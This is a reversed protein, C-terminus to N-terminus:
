RFRNILDMRKKPLFQSTEQPHHRPRSVSKARGSGQEMVEFPRDLKQGQDQRKTLAHREAHRAASDTEYKAQHISKLGLVLGESSKHLRRLDLFREFLHVFIEFEFPHLGEKIREREQGSQSLVDIQLFHQVTWGDPVDDRFSKFVSRGDDKGVLIGVKRNLYALIRSTHLCFVVEEKLANPGGHGEVGQKLHNFHVAVAVKIGIKGIRERNLFGEIQLTVAHEDKEVHRFVDDPDIRM